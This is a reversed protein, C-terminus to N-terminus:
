LKYKFINPNGQNNSIAYEVALRAHAEVTDFLPVKSDEKKVLLPLETAGLIIGQVGKSVLHEITEKIKNKSSNETKGLCLENYIIGHIIQREKKDPIITDINHMRYLRDIYFEEEMTPKTGLLGVKRLKQHKVQNAVADVIHLIPININYQIKDAMSHMMNACIVVFDAGGKEVNQAAFIMMELLEKNKHQRQLIEIEEFDVSYMISKASHLGSLREKVIENIIQYYRLSSQWSMGGILGMTKM